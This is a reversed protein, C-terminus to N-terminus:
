PSRGRHTPFRARSAELTLSELAPDAAFGLLEKVITSRRSRSIANFIPKELAPEVMVWAELSADRGTGRFEKDGYISGNWHDAYVIRGSKDYKPCLAAAVADQLAKGIGDVDMSGTVLYYYVTTRLGEVSDVPRLGAARLLVFVDEQWQTVLRDKRQGGTQWQPKYTDNVGM